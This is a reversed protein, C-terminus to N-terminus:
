FFKMRSKKSTKLIKKQRTNSAIQLLSHFSYIFFFVQFAKTSVFTIASRGHLQGGINLLDIMNLITSQFIIYLSKWLSEIFSTQIIEDNSTLKDIWTNQVLFDFDRKESPRFYIKPSLFSLGPFPAVVLRQSTTYIFEKKKCREGLWCWWMM